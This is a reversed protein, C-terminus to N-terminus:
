DIIPTVTFLSGLEKVTSTGSAVNQAFQITLNGANAVSLNGVIRVHIATPGAGGVAGGSSTQRSYADTSGDAEDIVEVYYTIGEDLTGSYAVAFKYGGTADCDVEAEFIFTYYNLTQNGGAPIPVTCGTITALTTNAAKAFDGTCRHGGQTYLWRQNTPATKTADTDNQIVLGYASNMRRLETDITTNWAAGSNSWQIHGDSSMKIGNIASASNGIGVGAAGASAEGVDGIIFLSNQLTAGGAGDARLAANDTAGTSGGIGAGGANGLTSQMQMNIGDYVCDVFQGVRIDNDALDTTIGGAVKKIAIAGLSNVNLTCAGTNATNAKFRYLAGVQYASPVPTLTIAYADTSGADAAYVPTSIDNVDAISQVGTTTTNKVLGTALAGMAQEASLGGSATQTIYTADAPAGTGSASLTTGSMSVGSGLAIEEYDGAGSDGRGLLKSGASAPTLNALPLDDTVGNSLDVQDWAPNNSAGTNSLYRTANADKNLAALTDTASAYLVDGQATTPVTSGGGTGTLVGGALTLGGAVSIEEPAGTSATTRGILRDTAQTLGSSTIPGPAVYDTGPAAISQVGTTTTNKVLGTALASMAQEASLGSSPTQTIYTADLPAGKDVPAWTPTIATLIWVSYDDLQLAFKRLDSSTFGTAAERTAADAYEWNCVKHLEGIPIVVHEINAM